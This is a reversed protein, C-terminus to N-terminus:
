FLVDLDSIDIGVGSISSQFEEWDLTGSRDVDLHGFLGLLQERLGETRQDAAARDIVGSVFLGTVVNLASLMMMFIFFVFAVVQFWSIQTLPWVVEIWSVGGM